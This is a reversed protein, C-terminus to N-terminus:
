GMSPSNHPYVPGTRQVCTHLIGRFRTGHTTSRLVRLHIALFLASERLVPHLFNLEPYISDM